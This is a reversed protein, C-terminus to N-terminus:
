QGVVFQTHGACGVACPTFSTVEGDIEVPTPAGSIHASSTLTYDLVPAGRRYRSLVLRLLDLNSKIRTVSLQPAEPDMTGVRAGGGYYGVNSLILGSTGRVNVRGADTDVTVEERIRHGAHRLGALALSLKRLAPRAPFYRRWPEATALIRADLGLSLYNIFYHPGARWVAVERRAGGSSRVCDLFRMPDPPALCGLARALDNGTGLPYLAVPVRAGVGREFLAAVVLSVTGDGGGVVVTDGAEVRAGVQAAARELDLSVPEYPAWQAALLRGAGRGSRPNIFIHVM